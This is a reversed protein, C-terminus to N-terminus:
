ILFIDKQTYSIFILISNGLMGNISNSTVKSSSDHQDMSCENVIMEKTFITERPRPGHRICVMEQLMEFGPTTGRM